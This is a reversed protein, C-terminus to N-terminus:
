KQKAAGAEVNPALTLEDDNELVNGVIEAGNLHRGDRELRAYYHLPRGQADNGALGMRTRLGQILEAITSSLPIATARVAKQGSVDSVKLGLTMAAAQAM